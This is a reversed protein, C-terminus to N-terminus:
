EAAEEDADKTTEVEGFLEVVRPNRPDDNFRVDYTHGRNLSIDLDSFAFDVSQFDASEEDMVEYRYKLLKQVALYQDSIIRITTRQGVMQVSGVEVSKPSLKRRLRTHSVRQPTPGKASERALKDARKNLHSDKHGKVWEITLRKHMADLKRAQRVLEKWLDANEVPRGARSLWRNNIWEYKATPFNKSVYQSDTFLVVKEYDWPDVVPRKGTLSKLAELCAMLEMQNNTAGAYGPRPEERVVEAGAKDAFVFVMGIGGRRPGPFSSGDTYIGLANDGLHEMLRVNSQASM